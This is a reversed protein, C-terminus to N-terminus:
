GLKRALYYTNEGRDAHVDLLALGNSELLTRYGDSDFSYYHFVVDNMTGEIGADSEQLGSPISPHPKGDADGGSTFLFVGGPRLVRSVDAIAIKQDRRTLHFLVGWAIAADFSGDLFACQQVIGRVVSTTPLNTRFRTLMRRASDLGVVRCGADRLATTIPLGNGCGIDLIRAGPPLSSALAIAEPVGTQDVRESAYWDAIADYERM